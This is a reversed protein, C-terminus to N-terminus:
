LLVAAPTVQQNFLQYGQADCPFVVCVCLQALVTASAPYVLEPPQQVQM